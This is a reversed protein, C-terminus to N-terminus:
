QTFGVIKITYYHVLSFFTINQTIEDKPMLPYSQNEQLGLKIIKPGIIIMIQRNFLKMMLVKYSWEQTNIM